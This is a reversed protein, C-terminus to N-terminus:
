TLWSQEVPHKPERRQQKAGRSVPSTLSILHFMRFRMSGLAYHCGCETSVTPMGTCLFVPAFCITGRQFRHRAVVIPRQIQHERVSTPIECCAGQLSKSNMKFFADEGCVWQLNACFPASVNVNKTCTLPKMWRNSM